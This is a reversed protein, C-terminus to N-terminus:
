KVGRVGLHQDHETIAFDVTEVPDLDGDLTLALIQATALAYFAIARNEAPTFNDRNQRIRRRNQKEIQKKYQDLVKPM